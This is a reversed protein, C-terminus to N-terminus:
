EASEPIYKFPIISFNWWIEHSLFHIYFPNEGTAFCSLSHIRLVLWSVRVNNRFIFLNEIKDNVLM